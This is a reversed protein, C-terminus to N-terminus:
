NKESRSINRAFVTCFILVCMKHEIFNKKKPLGYREHCLTSLYQLAPCAVSSLLIPSVRVAHRIGLHVFVCECYTIRNSKENYCHNCSHAEINHQLVSYTKTILICKREIPNCTKVSTQLLGITTCYQGFM